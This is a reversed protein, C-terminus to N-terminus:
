FAYGISTYFTAVVDNPSAGDRDGLGADSCPVKGGRVYRCHAADPNLMKAVGFAPRVSFGRALLLRYGIDLTIWQAADAGYRYSPRDDADHGAGPIGLIFSRWRGISYSATVSLAHAAPERVWVAPRLEVFAALQPGIANTGVGVGLGVYNSFSYSGTAGVLGVPAGFGLVGSVIVRRQEFDVASAPKAYLAALAFFALTLKLVRLFM